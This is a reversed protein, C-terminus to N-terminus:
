RQDVKNPNLFFGAISSRCRDGAAADVKKVMHQVGSKVLIIRNPKPHVFHGVGIELLKKNDSENDMYPGLVVEDSSGYLKTKPRSMNRTSPDAIMLEGGWSVNWVPHVYYIFAGSVGTYDDHWALGTHQPYLYARAFFFKWDINREGIWPKFLDESANITKFVHDIGKGTPYIKTKTDKENANSIYPTGLLPNGDILRNIKVWKSGHIFLFEESQFYNWVDKFETIPLFNDFVAFDETGFVKQMNLGCFLFIGGLKKSTPPM